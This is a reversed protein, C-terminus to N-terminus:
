DNKIRSCGPPESDQRHNLDSHISWRRYALAICYFRGDGNTNEDIQAM